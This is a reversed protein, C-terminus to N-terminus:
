MQLGIGIGNPTVYPMVRTVGTRARLERVRRNHTRPGVFADWTQLIRSGLEIAAAGGLMALGRNECSHNCGRSFLEIVGAVELGAAGTDALTFMWGRELWRGEISQGIGFGVLIAAVGGGITQGDSIEGQELVSRDDDDLIPTASPPRYDYPAPVMPAPAPDAFAPLSVGLAAAIVIWRATM